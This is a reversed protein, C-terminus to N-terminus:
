CGWHIPSLKMPPIFNLHSDGDLMLENRVMAVAQRLHHEHETMEHKLKVVPLNASAHLDSSLKVHRATARWTKM